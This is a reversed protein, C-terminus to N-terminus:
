VMARLSDLRLAARVLASWDLLLEELLLQKNPNAGSLLQQKLQVLKDIFRYLFNPPVCSALYRLREPLEEGGRGVSALSLRYCTLHVWEVLELPEYSQWQQAVDLPTVRGDVLSVLGDTLTNRLELTDGDMMALASLPAGNAYDLLKDASQDGCFPTLWAIAQERSPLGMPLMQCRSRITAMVQSPVNSLLILLTDGAPEELCKLLANAANTNMAEAPAIIAMKMGGQQSTKAVFETLERVQSIKIVRSKDEPQLVYFDPHTGVKNLECPKCRECPAGSRPSTCLLVQGLATAFHQKGTGKQGALMLAHPLQQSTQQRLLRQWLDGQWPYPLAPFANSADNSM